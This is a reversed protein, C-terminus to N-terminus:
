CGQPAWACAWSSWEQVARAQLATARQIVVEQPTNMAQQIAYSWASSTAEFPVLTPADAGMLEITSGVRPAVFPVGLEMCRIAIGSQYFRRYPVLVVASGRLAQDLEDEALFRDTVHWGPIAPWGPGLIELRYADSLHGRSLQALLSLDRDPKYQGLVRIVGHDSDDGQDGGDAVILPHPLLRVRRGPVLGRTEDEAASSHVILDTTPALRTTLRRAFQGHGVSRSLPTPDHIIVDARM